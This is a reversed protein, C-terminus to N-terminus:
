SEVNGRNRTLWHISDRCTTAGGEWDVAELDVVESRWDRDIMAELQMELSPRDRGGLADRLESSRPKWTCREVREIVAELYM